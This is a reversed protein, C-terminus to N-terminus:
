SLALEKGPKQTNLKKPPSQHPPADSGRVAGGSSRHLPRLNHRPGCDGGRNGDHATVPRRFGYFHGVRGLFIPGM